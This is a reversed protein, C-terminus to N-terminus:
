VANSSEQDRTPILAKIQDIQENLPHPKGAQKQCETQKSFSDAAEDSKGLKTLAFGM